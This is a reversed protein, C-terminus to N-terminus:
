DAPELSFYDGLATRIEALTLHRQYAVSGHYGPNHQCTLALVDPQSASELSFETSYYLNTPSGGDDMGTGLFRATPFHAVSITSISRSVQTIEFTDPAVSLKGDSVTRVEFICYPEIEHVANRAVVKGFQLRVLAEGQPIDLTQKLVLRSGTAYQYYPSGPGYPAAACGAILLLFSFIPPFRM